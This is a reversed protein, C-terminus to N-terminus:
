AAVELLFISGIEDDEQMTVTASNTTGNCQAQTKYTVASTTNPSDMKMFTIRVRWGLWSSSANDQMGQSYDSQPIIITSDRVLRVGGYLNVGIRDQSWRQNTVVWIKSSASTPTITGTLTTDTWTTTQITTETTTEASVVQLIKGGALTAFELTGATSSNRLVQNATGITAPLKLELDSAPNTAPAAISM